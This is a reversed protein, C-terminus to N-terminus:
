AASVARMFIGTRVNLTSGRRDDLWAISRVAVRRANVNPPAVVNESRDM